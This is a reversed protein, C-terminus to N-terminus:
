RANAPIPAEVDPRVARSASSISASPKPREQAHEDDVGAHQHGSGVAVVGIVCGAPGQELVVVAREDGSTEDDGVRGVEDITLDPGVALDGQVRRDDVAHDNDLRERNGVPAADALEDVPVAIQTEAAGVGAGDGHRLPESGLADGREVTAVEADHARGM